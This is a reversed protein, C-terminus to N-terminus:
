KERREGCKKCVSQSSIDVTYVYQDDEYDKEKEPYTDDHEGHGDNAQVSPGIELPQPEVYMASVREYYDMIKGPRFYIEMRGMWARM